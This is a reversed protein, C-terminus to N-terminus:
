GGDKAPPAADHGHLPCAEIAGKVEVADSGEEHALIKRDKGITFTHRKAIGLLMMKVDYLKILKLDSDSVFAQPAKLESRWSKLTDSDDSSVAIVRGHLKEIEANRDRFAKM